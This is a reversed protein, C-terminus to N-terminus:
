SDGSIDDADAKAAEVDSPTGGSDREFFDQQQHESDTQEAVQNAFEEDSVGDGAAKHESM